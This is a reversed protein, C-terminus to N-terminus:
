LCLREPVWASVHAAPDCLEDLEVVRSGYVRGALGAMIKRRVRSGPNLLLLSGGNLPRCNTTSRTMGFMASECAREIMAM